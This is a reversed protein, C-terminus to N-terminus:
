APYSRFCRPLPPFDGRHAPSIWRRLSSSSLYIVLRLQLFLIFILGTRTRIPRIPRFPYVMYSCLYKEFKGIVIYYPNKIKPHQPLTIKTNKSQPFTNFQHSIMFKRPNLIKVFYRFILYYISMKLSTHYLTKM